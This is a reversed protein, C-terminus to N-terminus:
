ALAEGKLRARTTGTTHARAGGPPSAEKRAPATMQGRSTKVTRFKFLLGIFNRYGNLKSVFRLPTTGPCNM